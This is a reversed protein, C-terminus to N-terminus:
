KENKEKLLKRAEDEDEKIVLLEKPASQGFIGDGGYPSTSDRLITTIGNEELFGKVIEAKVGNEFIDLVIWKTDKEKKGM